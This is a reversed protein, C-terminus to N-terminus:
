LGNVPGFAPLADLLFGLGSLPIRPGPSFLEPGASLLAIFFSM